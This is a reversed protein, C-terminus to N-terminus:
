KPFQGPPCPKGCTPTTTDDDKNDLNGQGTETTQTDKQFKEQGSNKAPVDVSDQECSATGNTRTFTGGNDTCTQESSAAFAPIASVSLAAVVFAALAVMMMIRKM